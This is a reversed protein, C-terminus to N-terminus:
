GTSPPQPSEGTQETENGHVGTDPKQEVKEETLVAQIEEEKMIILREGEWEIESGAYKTGYLVIDGVVVAPTFRCQIDEGIENKDVFVKGPGVALVEGRLTDDRACDPIIIGGESKEPTQEPRILVRDNFPKIPCTTM